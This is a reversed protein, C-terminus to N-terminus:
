LVPGSGRSVPYCVGAAIRRSLAVRVARLRCCDFDHGRDERIGSVGTASGPAAPSHDPRRREPHRAIVGTTWQGSVIMGRRAGHVRQNLLTLLRGQHAIENALREDLAMFAAHPLVSRSMRLADAWGPRMLEPTMARALLLAADV